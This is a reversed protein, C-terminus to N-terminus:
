PVIRKIIPIKKLCLVVILSILYTLLICLTRWQWSVIDINLVALEISMIIQHILYIGFSCNAMTSIIISTKNNLNIKKTFLDKVLVFVSAALLMSHWSTYGGWTTKVVIGAEKSMIYTSAYRYIIGIITAIYLGIKQKKSLETNSLLYGLIVFILYGSFLISADINYKINFLQFINPVLANLIFYITVTFWLTKHNEKKALLSLIPMTLYIGIINFMFYYTSEEKNSFFANIYDQINNLGSLTKLFYIKWIFMITAWILFPILVKMFRKVFFTKTDYKKRYNMLTAGSLMCFIPVAFYCLCEVVLSTNWARSMPNMHVIGNHHLALVAIIAIINLIDYYVIRSKAKM